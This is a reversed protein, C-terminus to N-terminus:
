VLYILFNRIRAFSVEIQQNEVSSGAMLEPPSFFNFFSENKFFPTISPKPSMEILNKGANWLIECGISKFIEPGEFLFPNDVDVSCKMLYTKTLVPNKFFENPAFHFELHFSLDPAPKSFARIDVLYKLAAEDTQQIMSSVEHVNQLAILWFDPMGTPKEQGEVPEDSQVEIGGFKCEDDTPEYSGNVIEFRQKFFVDHKAKYKQELDYVARYFEADLKMM